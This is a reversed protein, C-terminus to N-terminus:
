EGFLEPREFALKVCLAGLKCCAQQYEDCLHSSAIDHALEHILFRLVRESTM